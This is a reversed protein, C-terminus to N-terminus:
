MQLHHVLFVRFELAALTEWGPENLIEERFGVLVEKM